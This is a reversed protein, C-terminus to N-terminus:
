SSVWSPIQLIGSALFWRTLFFSLCSFLSFYSSYLSFSLFKSLLIYSFSSFFSLFHNTSSFLNIPPFVLFLISFIWSEKFIQEFYTSHCKEFTLKKNRWKDWNVRLFTWLFSFFFNIIYISVFNHFAGLMGVLGNGWM